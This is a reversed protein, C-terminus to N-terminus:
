LSKLFTRYSVIKSKDISSIGRVVSYYIGTNKLEVAPHLYKKWRRPSEDYDQDTLLFLIKQKNQLSNIIEPSAGSDRATKSYKKLEENTNILLLTLNGNMDLFLFSGSSDLLYYEVANTAQYVSNFLEMFDTLHLPNNRDALLANMIMESVKSFYKGQEQAVAQKIEDFTNHTDKTLFKNIIGRNFCDVAIDNGAKGTLIIKRLSTKGFQECLKMGNMEPMSYDAVLVSMEDFRKPNYVQKHIDKINFSILTSKEQDSDIDPDNIASVIEGSVQKITKPLIDNPAFNPNDYLVTAVAGALKLRTNSLFGVNDDILAVRTPYYFCAINDITM